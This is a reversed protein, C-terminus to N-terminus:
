PDGQFHSMNRNGLKPIYSRLSGFDEDRLLIHLLSTQKSSTTEKFIIKRPFTLYCHKRQKNQGLLSKKGGVYNWSTRHSLSHRQRDKHHQRQVHSDINNVSRQTIILHTLRHDRSQSIFNSGKLKPHDLLHYSQQQLKVFTSCDNHVPRQVRHELAHLSGSFLGSLSRHEWYLLPHQPIWSQSLLM